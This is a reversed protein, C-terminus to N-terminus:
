ILPLGRGCSCKEKSPTGIDGVKYRIIPMATNYLSTYVIEGKNGFDVPKNDKIFETIVSDMDIHYGKHELCEWATRGVEVCGFQDLPEVGFAKKIDERMNKDLIESTVYILKLKKSLKIKKNLIERAILWISSAYGDIVSPKFENLVKLHKDPTDYLSVYKVNIM